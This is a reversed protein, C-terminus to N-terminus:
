ACCTKGRLKKQPSEFRVIRTKCRAGSLRQRAASQIPSSSPGYPTKYEGKAGSTMLTLRSVPIQSIAGYESLISELSIYSFFGRRLVVAIDEVVNSKKSNAMPNLYVGKAM